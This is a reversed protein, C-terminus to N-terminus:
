VLEKELSEILDPFIKDRDKVTNFFPIGLTKCKECIEKSENIYKTVKEMLEEDTIKCTWSDPIDNTRIRNFVDNIDADPYGLAIIKNDKEPFLSQAMEVPISASELVFNRIGYPNPTNSSSISYTAIFKSLIEDHTHSHHKIGIEPMVYQFATIFADGHVANMNFKKAAIRCLTTKGARPAGLIILNKM